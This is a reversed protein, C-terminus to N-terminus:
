HEGNIERILRLGEESKLKGKDIDDLISEITQQDQQRLGVLENIMTDVHKRLTPYSVGLQESLEKFNGSCLLFAEALKLSETSLRMIRPFSFVGEYTVGCSDCKLKMPTLSSQCALCHKM